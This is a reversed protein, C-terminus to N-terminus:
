ESNSLAKKKSEIEKLLSDLTSDDKRGVATFYSTLSSVIKSMEEPTSDKLNKMFNNAKEFVSMKVTFYKDGVPYVVKGKSTEYYEGKPMFM